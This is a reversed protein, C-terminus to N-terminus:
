PEPDPTTNEIKVTIKYLNGEVFETQSLTAKRRKDGELLWITPEAYLTCPPVILRYTGDGVNLATYTATNPVYQPTTTSMNWGPNGRMPLIHSFGEANNVAVGLVKGNNEKSCKYKLNYDGSNSKSKEAYYDGIVVEAHEILPMGELMLIADAAITGDVTFIIAAMRHYFNFHVFDSGTQLYSQAWLIDSARYNAKISQNTHFSPTYNLKLKGTSVTFKREVDWTQATFVYPTQQAHRQSSMRTSPSDIYDGNIDCGDAASLTTWDSVDWKMLWFSDFTGDWATEGYETSTVFPCIVKIRLFDGQLFDNGAVNVRSLDGDGEGVFPVISSSFQMPEDAPMPEDASHSACGGLAAVALLSLLTHSLRNMILIILHIFTM